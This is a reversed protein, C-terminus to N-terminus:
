ATPGNQEDRVVVLERRRGAVRDRDDLGAFDVTRTRDPGNQFGGSSV